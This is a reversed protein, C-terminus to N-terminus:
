YFYKESIRDFLKYWIERANYKEELWRWLHNYGIALMLSVGFTIGGVLFISIIENDPFYRLLFRKNVEIM